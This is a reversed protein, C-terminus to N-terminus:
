GETLNMPDDGEKTRNDQFVGNLSHEHAMRSLTSSEFFTGDRRMQDKLKEPIFNQHIIDDIQRHNKLSALTKEKNM